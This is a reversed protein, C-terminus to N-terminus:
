GTMVKYICTLDQRLQALQCLCNEQAQSVLSRIQLLLPGKSNCMIGSVIRAAYCVQVFTQEAGIHRGQKAFLSVVAQTYYATKQIDTANEAHDAAANINNTALAAAFITRADASSLASPLTPDSTTGVWAKAGYFIDQVSTASDLNLAPGSVNYGNAAALNTAGVAQLLM